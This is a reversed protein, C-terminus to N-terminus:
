CGIITGEPGNAWRALPWWGAQVGRVDGRDHWYLVGATILAITFVAILTVRFKNKGIYKM